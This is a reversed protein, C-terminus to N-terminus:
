YVRGGAFLGSFYITSYSVVQGTSPAQIMVGGGVYLGVHYVNGPSGYFVLDGPQLDPIPIRRTAYYQDQALHDLGVGAAGWARMTLGSCDFSYPGAGGWLYPKGL